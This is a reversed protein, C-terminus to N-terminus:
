SAGVELVGTSAVTIRFRTPGSDLQLPLVTTEQFPLGVDTSSYRETVPMFSPRLLPAAHVGTSVAFSEVVALTPAFYVARLRRSFLSPTILMVPLAMSTVTSFIVPVPPVTLRAASRVASSPLRVPVIVMASASSFEFISTLSLSAFISLFRVESSRVASSAFDSMAAPTSAASFTPTVLVTSSPMYLSPKRISSSPAVVLVPGFETMCDVSSSAAAAGNAILLIRIFSTLFRRPSM